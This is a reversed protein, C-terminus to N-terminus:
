VAAAGTILAELQDAPVPRCLLFGQAGDCGLSRLGDLQADTEVGEATVSMGLAHGLEVVAAVMRGDNTAGDLEGVFSPAIKIEDAKLSRLNRLPAAGTGYDDIAVRLGAAKLVRAARIVADPEASVTTEPIDVCVAAPELGAADVAALAAALEPTGLQESSVNVSVTLDSRAGQLRALLELAQGFVFRGIAASMGLEHALPLFEAASILGYDPHDWRVLAEFGVLRREDGLEYRPQYVVCLESRELASRLQQTLVDHASQPGTQASPAADPPALTPAAGPAAPAPDPATAATVDLLQAGGGRRKAQYMAADAEAILAEPAIGPDSTTAVGISVALERREDGLGIPVGIALRIREAIALAETASSLDELLFTFEDGGFRAVTDMPRLISQLRGALASLLRDGAAHGLSDNIVKFSDVDLFLVGTVAGTRRTRELAVGLRDIFLTRNPLGTLPDQLARQALQENTRKREIAHRIARRLSTPTLHARALVDQAGARLALLAVGDSYDGSLVVVPTGPALVRVRELVAFPDGSGLLVASVSGTGLQQSVDEIQEAVTVSLRESWSLRLMEDILAAASREQEILLLHTSDETTM